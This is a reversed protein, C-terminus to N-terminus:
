SGETWKNGCKSCRAFITMPEDLSRTQKSVTFIKKCGCKCTLVGESIEYPCTMFDNEEEIKKKELDFTPHSWLLQDKKLYSIALSLKDVNENVPDGIMCLIEFIKSAQNPGNTKNIIYDINKQQGFYKKLCNKLNETDM